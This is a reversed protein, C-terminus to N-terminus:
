KDWLDKPFVKLLNQQMKDLKPLEPPTMKLAEEISKAIPFQKRNTSYYYDRYKFNSFENRDNLLIAPVGYAEALIIGHLSGSIVLKSECIKDIIKKYDKTKLDVSNLNEKQKQTYHNIILYEEKKEVNKNQYILPMLIAPDGYVEPCNIGNNILYERTLPGRVARIDLKRIHKNFWITINGALGTLKDKVGSGWITSDQFGTLLISGIAYLHKTKNVKKNKPINNIKLLYEYVVVSLYDGLNDIEKKSDVRWYNLNVINKTAKRNYDHCIISNRRLFIQIIMKIKELISSESYGKM